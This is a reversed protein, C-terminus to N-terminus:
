GQFLFYNVLSLFCVAVVINSVSNVYNFWRNYRYEELQKKLAKIQTEQVYASDIYFSVQDRLNEISLEKQSVDLDYLYKIDEESLAPKSENM